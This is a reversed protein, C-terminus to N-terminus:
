AQSSLCTTKLKTGGFLKWLVKQVGHKRETMRFEYAVGPWDRAAQRVQESWWSPPRVTVHANWGNPLTKGAPYCAVNSFVFRKGLRFLEQLHWGIDEEPVHELVDTCVVGDAPESPFESFEPVGPDYCRITEVGWYEKVSTIATGDGIVFNKKSYLLGKGSGYDLISRAEYRKVLTRVQPIHNFLAKGTFLHDAAKGADPLGSRHMEKYVQMLDRFRPSPHERTYVTNAMLVERRPRLLRGGKVPARSQPLSGGPAPERRSLGFRSRNRGRRLCRFGM